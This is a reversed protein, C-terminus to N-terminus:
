PVYNTGKGCVSCQARNDKVPASKMMEKCVDCPGSYEKTPTTASKTTTTFIKDKPSEDLSDNVDSM